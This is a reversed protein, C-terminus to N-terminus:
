RYKKLGAFGHAFSNFNISIESVLFACVCYIISFCFLEVLLSVAFFKSAM